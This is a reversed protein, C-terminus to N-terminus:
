YILVYVFRCDVFKQWDGILACVAQVKDFAWVTWFRRNKVDGEDNDDLKSLIGNKEALELCVWDDRLNM